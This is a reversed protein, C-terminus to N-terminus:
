QKNRSYNVLFRIMPYNPVRSLQNVVQISDQQALDNSVRSLQDLCRTFM